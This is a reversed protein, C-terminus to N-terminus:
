IILGCPGDSLGPSWSVDGGCDVVCEADGGICSDGILESARQRYQVVPSDDFPHQLVCSCLTEGEGQWPLLPPPAPHVAGQVAAVRAKSFASSLARAPFGSSRFNAGPSGFVATGPHADHCSDTEERGKAIEKAAKRSVLLVAIGMQM